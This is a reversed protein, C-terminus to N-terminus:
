KPEVLITYPRNHAVFSSAEGYYYSSRAFNLDFLEICSYVALITLIQVCVYITIGKTSLEIYTRHRSMLLPFSWFWILWRVEKGHKAICLLSLVRIYPIPGKWPIGETCVRLKDYLWITGFSLSVFLSTPPTFGSDDITLLSLHFLEVGVILSNLAMWYWKGVVVVFCLM